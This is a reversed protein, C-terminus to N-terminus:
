KVEQNSSLNEIEGDVKKENEHKEPHHVCAPCREAFDDSVSLLSSAENAEIRGVFHGRIIDGDARFHGFRHSLFIVWEQRSEAM